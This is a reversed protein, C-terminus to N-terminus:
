KAADHEHKANTVLHYVGRAFTSGGALVAGNVAPSWPLATNLMYNVQGSAAGFLAGVVAGAAAGGGACKLGTSVSRTALGGVVGAAAGIVVAGGLAGGAAGFGVSRGHHSDVLAGSVSGAGAALTTQALVQTFTKPSESIYSLASLITVKDKPEAAPKEGPVGACKNNQPSVQPTQNSIRM